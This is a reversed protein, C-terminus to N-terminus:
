QNTEVGFDSFKQRSYVLTHVDEEGTMFEVVVSGVRGVLFLRRLLVVQVRVGGDVDVHARGSPAQVPVDVPHHPGPRGPRGFVVSVHLGPEPHQADQVLGGEGPRKEARTVPLTRRSVPPAM